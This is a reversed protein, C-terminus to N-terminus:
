LGLEADTINYNARFREPVQRMLVRAEQAYKTNPYKSIVKRCLEIPDRYSRAQMKNAIQFLTKAYSLDKSAEVDAETFDSNNEQPQPATPAPTTQTTTNTTTPAAASTQNTDAPKLYEMQIKNPEEVAKSANPENAENPETFEKPNLLINQIIMNPLINNVDGAYRIKKDPGAIILMPKAPREGLVSTVLQQAMANPPICQWPQPSKAFWNQVNAIKASDNFNIGSFQVKPNKSYRNYLNTFAIVDPIPTPEFNEQQFPPVEVPQEEVPPAPNNPDDVENVDPKPAPPTYRELESEDIQWILTSIIVKDTGVILPSFDKGLLNTNISNLPINLTGEPLQSQESSINSDTLDSFESISNYDKTLVSMALATRKFNDNIAKDKIAAAIQKQVRDPKEDFYLVWASLAYYTGANGQKNLVTLYKKYKTVFKLGERVNADDPTRGANIIAVFKNYQTEIEPGASAAEQEFQQKREAIQQQRSSAGGGRPTVEAFCASYSILFSLIIVFSVTQKLTTM